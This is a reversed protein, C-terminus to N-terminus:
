ARVTGSLSSLRVVCATVAPTFKRKQNGDEAGLRVTTQDVGGPTFGRRPKIKHSSTAENTRYPVAYNRKAVLM